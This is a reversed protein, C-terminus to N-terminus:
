PMMGLGFMMAAVLLAASLAALAINQNISTDGHLAFVNATLAIPLLSLGVVGLLVLVVAGILRHRARRRVAEISQPPASANGQSASRSTFM